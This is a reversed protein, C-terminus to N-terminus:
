RRNSLVSREGLLVVIEEQSFGYITLAVIARTRQDIEKLHDLVQLNGTALVAKVGAGAAIEEDRVINRM